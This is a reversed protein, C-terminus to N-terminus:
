EFDSVVSAYTKNNSRIFTYINEKNPSIINYLIGSKLSTPFTVTIDSAGTNKLIVIITKGNALNSFTFTSSTSIDKYFTDGLSWDVNLASINIDSVGGGAAEWTLVGSGNNKLFTNSAGQTAPLTVTYSTTTAAPQVTLTGSTSGNLELSSIGSIPKDNLTVGMATNVDLVGASANLVIDSLSSTITAAEDSFVNFSTGL